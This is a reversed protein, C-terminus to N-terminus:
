VWLGDLTNSLFCKVQRNGHTRLEPTRTRCKDTAYRCRSAFACGPPPDIASPIDGELIERKRLRGDIDPIASLLARTYPHLPNRYVDEVDGVEVLRGMYMVGIRDSIYHVVNLDHSIFLWTLGHTKQLEKMLNLIQAQVSVDLASVPEDAVVFEPDMIMAIAISIRQRQGGSLENPYRDLHAEDMGVEKLMRLVMERREEANKGIGHIILPEELLWGLKKKPNLSSYPDQFIIQYKERFEKMDAPRPGEPYDHYSITGATPRRLRVLMHGLTSKGCGSEGVIGFTEGKRLALSVGDVAHLYRPKEFLKESKIKYYKCLGDVKVIYDEDQRKEDAGM